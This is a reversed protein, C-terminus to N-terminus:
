ILRPPETLLTILKRGPHSLIRLEIRLLFLDRKGLSSGPWNRGGASSLRQDGGNAASTWSSRLCAEVGWVGDQLTCPFEIESISWCFQWSKWKERPEAVRSCSAAFWCNQPDRRRGNRAVSRWIWVAIQRGATLLIRVYPSTAGFRLRRNWKVPAFRACNRSGWPNDNQLKQNIERRQRSRVDCLTSTLIIAFSPSSLFQLPRLRSSADGRRRNYTVIVLPLLANLQRSYKIVVLCTAGVTETM